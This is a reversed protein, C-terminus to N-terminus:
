KGDIFAVLRSRLSELKTECGWVVLSQWGLEKLREIAQLDREVNRSIKESWFESNTAPMKSKRCGLHAHWFCGHVFIVKRRSPFVIDPTGPLDRRHLRFRYGLAHLLRRVALEPTTDKTRIRSMILSRKEPDYRDSRGSNASM